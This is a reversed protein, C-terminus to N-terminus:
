RKGASKVSARPCVSVFMRGRARLRCAHMCSRLICGGERRVGCLYGGGGSVCVSVYMGWGSVSMGGRGVGGWVCVGVECERAHACVCVCVCM